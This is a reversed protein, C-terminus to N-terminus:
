KSKGKNKEAIDSLASLVQNDNFVIYENRNEQMFKPKHKVIIGDYGQEILKDIQDKRAVKNSDGFYENGRMETIFKKLKNPISDDNIVYPNEINLYVPRVQAGEKFDEDFGLRRAYTNATNPNASFFIGDTDVIGGRKVNKIESPRKFKDFTNTTGHYLVLPQNDKDVVKSKDFWDIFSDSFGQMNNNTKSSKKVTEVIKKGGKVLPILGVGPMGVQGSIEAAGLVKKKLESDAESKPDLGMETLDEGIAESTRGLLPPLNLAKIDDFGRMFSDFKSLVEQEAEPDKIRAMLQDMQDQPINYLGKAISLLDGALGGVEMVAGKGVAQPIQTAFKKDEESMLTNVPPIGYGMSNVAGLDFLSPQVSARAKEQLAEIDIVDDEDVALNDLYIQDLKTTM